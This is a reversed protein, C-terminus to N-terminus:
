DITAPRALITTGMRYIVASLMLIIGAFETLPPTEENLLYFFLLGFITEFITLEGAVSIPLRLCANNWLYAGIWSCAIGLILCGTIFNSLNSSPTIFKQWHEIGHWSEYAIGLFFVWFFTAAGILTSWESSSIQPNKKLFRSNTVVFWSWAALSGCASLAGVWYFPKKEAHEEQLAPLNVLLLGVLILLSPIILETFRCERELWNGYFAITIPCMGLILATLSPSACTVGTVVCSYYMINVILAFVFAMVWIKVSYQTFKRGSFLLILLSVTGYISHRGLAIELSDFGQMYTPVIFILGWIFCATLAFLTGACMKPNM